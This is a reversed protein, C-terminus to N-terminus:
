CTSVSTSLLWREANRLEAIETRRGTFADIISLTRTSATAGDIVVVLQDAASWGITEIGHGMAVGDGPGNAIDPVDWLELTGQGDARLVALRAGDPSLCASATPVGRLEAVVSRRNTDIVLLSPGPVQVVALAGEAHHVAVQPDDVQPLRDFTGTDVDVLALGTPGQDDPESPVVLLGDDVAAVVQRVGGLRRPEGDGAGSAHFVVDVEGRGGLHDILWVGAGSEAAAVFSDGFLDAVAGSELGHLRVHDGGDVVLRLSAPSPWLRPVSIPSRDVALDVFATLKGRQVLWVPATGDPSVAALVM